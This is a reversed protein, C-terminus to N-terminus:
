LLLPRAHIRLTYPGRADRAFSSVRITYAGGEVLTHELRIVGDVRDAFVPEEVGPGLLWLVPEFESAELEVSIVWGSDVEVTHEDVPTDLRALRADDDSLEGREEREVPQRLWPARPLPCRDMERLTGAETLCSLTAAPMVMGVCRADKFREELRFNLGFEATSVGGSALEARRAQIRECSAKTARPELMWRAAQDGVLRALDAREPAEGARTAAVIRAAAQRDERETELYGRAERQEAESLEAEAVLRALRGKVQVEASAIARLFGRLMAEHYDADRNKEERIRQVYTAENNELHARWDQLLAELERGIDRADEEDRAALTMVWRLTPELAAGSTPERTEVSVGRSQSLVRRISDGGVDPLCSEVGGPVSSCMADFPLRAPRPRVLMYRSDPAIARALLRAYEMHTTESREAGRNWERAYAAVTKADGFAWLEGRRAFAARGEDCEGPSQEAPHCRGELGSFNHRRPFPPEDIEGPAMVAVMRTEGGDDFRLVVMELGDGRALKEGCVLGERVSEEHLVDLVGWSGLEEPKLDRAELLARGIDRGGCFSALASGTLEREVESAELQRITEITIVRSPIGEALLAESVPSSGGLVKPLVLLGGGVLLGLSLGIAVGLAWRPVRRGPAAPAMARPVLERLGPVEGAPRWEGEDVRVRTEHTIAGRRALEVMAAMTYPGRPVGEAMVWYTEELVTEM